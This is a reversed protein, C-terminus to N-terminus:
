LLYDEWSQDESYSQQSLPQTFDVLGDLYDGYAGSFYFYESWYFYALQTNDLSFDGSVVVADDMGNKSAAYIGLGALVLLVAAFVAAAARLSKTSNTGM